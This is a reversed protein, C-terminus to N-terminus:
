ADRRATFPAVTRPGAGTADLLLQLVTAIVPMRVIWGVWAWGFNLHELARGVARVGDVRYGDPAAYTIRRLPAEGPWDAAGTLRLGVPDRRAIWHAVPECVACGWGVYLVSVGAVHPRWRPWWARVARRYDTWLPGFRQTLQANEHWAALGASFVCGSVAGAALAWSGAVASWGLLLMTVGLQMPNAVYAYPGTTVLRDPPDYPFPTGNGREALEFVGSVALAAPLLLVQAAIGLWWRPHSTLRDWSAGEVALAAGTGLVITLAGFCVMQLLVRVRLHRRQATWRGLLVGPVLAVGVAALEGLWWHPGLRLLPACAPMLVIDLWAALAVLAYVPMRPAALVPLAGWLLSWGIWLDAPFGAASGPVEEFSWWGQAGAVVHVALLAPLNWLTALLAGGLAQRSPRRWYAVGAVAVVPGYLALGRVILPDTRM